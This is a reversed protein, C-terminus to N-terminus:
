SNLQSENYIFDDVQGEACLNVVETTKVTIVKLGTLLFFLFDALFTVGDNLSYSMYAQFLHYVKANKLM